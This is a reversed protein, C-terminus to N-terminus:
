IVKRIVLGMFEVLRLQRKWRWPQKFLRFLWELGLQRMLRPAREVKGLLFDFSGGVAMGIKVGSKNLLEKHEVLWTEQKPAGLAVFVIAPKLKKLQQAILKENQYDEVWEIKLDPYKQSLKDQYGKGGILMISYKKDQSIEILDSVIDVGAIRQKLSPKRQVGGIFKSALVIGIGDPLLLDSEKLTRYFKSDHKAQVIQEPNPTMVLKAQSGDELYKKLFALLQLRQSGFLNLGLFNITPYAKTSNLKKM